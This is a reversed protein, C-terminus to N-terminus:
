GHDSHCPIHEPHLGWGLPSVPAVDKTVHRRQRNGVDSGAATSQTLKRLSGLRCVIRLNIAARHAQWEATVSIASNSIQPNPFAVFSAVGAAGRAVFQPSHLM